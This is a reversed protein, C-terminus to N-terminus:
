MKRKYELANNGIKMEVLRETAWLNEFKLLDRGGWLLATVESPCGFNRMSYDYSSSCLNSKFLISNPATWIKWVCKSASQWLCFEKGWSDWICYLLFFLRCCKLRPPSHDGDRIFDTAVLGVVNNNFSICVNLTKSYNKIGLM